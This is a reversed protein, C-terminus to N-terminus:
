RAGVQEARQRYAIELEGTTRGGVPRDTVSAGAGPGGLRGGRGGMGCLTANRWRRPFATPLTWLSPTTGFFAPNVKRGVAGLFGTLSSAYARQDFGGV